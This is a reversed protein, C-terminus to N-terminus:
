ILGAEKGRAKSWEYLYERSESTSFWPSLPQPVEPLSAAKLRLEDSLNKNIKKLVEYKLMFLFNILLERRLNVALKLKM